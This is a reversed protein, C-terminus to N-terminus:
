AASGAPPTDPRTARMRSPAERLSELMTRLAPEELPRFLGLFSRSVVGPQDPNEMVQWAESFAALIKLSQNLNHQAELASLSASNLSLDEGLTKQEVSFNGLKEFLRDLAEQLRHFADSYDKLKEQQLPSRSSGYKNSLEDHNSRWRFPLEVVRSLVEPAFGERMARLLQQYELYKVKESELIEPLREIADALSEGLVTMGEEDPAGHGNVPMWTPDVLCYRGGRRVIFTTDTGPRQTTLLAAFNIVHNRLLDQRHKEQASDPDLDPLKTEWNQDIHLVKPRKALGRFRHYEGKMENMRGFVYLPVNLVARYFIIEKPNHWGTTVWTLNSDAGRIVDAIASNRFDADIAAVFVRDPRVGGHQDRSDDYVCLLSAKEKVLRKIKDRLYDKQQEEKLDLKRDSPQHNYEAMLTRIAKHGDKGVEASNSRYLARYVVELELADSLTLGDRREADPSHPDGAIRVGLKGRMLSCLNTFLRDLDATSAGGRRRISIDTVTDSLLVQVDRDALSVEPLDSIKDEFYFDWMRRGDEVQLAEGDLVYRNTSNDGEERLKRLRNIQEKELSDFGKELERQTAAFKQLNVKLDGLREIFAQTVAQMARDMAQQQLSELAPGADKPTLKDGDKIEGLDFDGGREPPRVEWRVRELISLVAYRKAALDVDGVEDNLFALDVLSDMGPFKITGVKYGNRLIRLGVGKFEDIWGSARNKIELGRTNGSVSPKNEEAHIEMAKRAQELLGAMGQPGDGSIAPLVISGISFRMGDRALQEQDGKVREPRHEWGGDPKPIEGLRHGHRFLSFFRKAEGELLECAALLRVRKMYLRDILAERVAPEKKHFESTPVPKENKENGLTVEEFSEPNNRLVSYTPDGPITRLFSSRMLNLAAAQSCYEVLGTVPVLLVAAGYAGYFSSFGVIGKGEFDHPVLFRQHQTFNDYDSAQYSHLPSFFQLYLGDAAADVPDSVTFSQPKDVVYVFEFPKERVTRKSADSPDYHFTIGEEPFFRSDPAGLKMLYETEKLAAYGNAFTGDRNIGTKDEFVAPLVAVGIIWPKGLDRALDRLVYAIPLHCGSGTGGAVSYCLIIRIEATDLRRHGHEHSKLDELLKRLKPIFDKHKMQYFVGLRSEIRIQGAGATDGARFRYDQPVWQTFYPDAELFLKGSALHAYEEKEFDSILFTGDAKERHAELDNINTDILAFKVLAKYREDFDPRSRLHDAVRTVMRCGCGGLGVFLTPSVASPKTLLEEIVLKQHKSM